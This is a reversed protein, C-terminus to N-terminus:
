GKSLLENVKKVVAFADAVYLVDAKGQAWGCNADMNIARRDNIFRWGVVHPEEGHCCSALGKPHRPTTGTQGVQNLHTMFSFVSQGEHSQDVLSKTSGLSAQSKELFGLIIKAAEDLHTRGDSQKKTWGVGAVFLLQADPRITQADTDPSKFGIVTTKKMADSLKVEVKEAKITESGKESYPAFLGSDVILFWPRSVRRLRASMRQRYYWRQIELQGSASIAYACVHTDIRGGMRLAVGPLARQARSSTAAIVITAGSTRAIAEFAAADTAYRSSSFDNGSVEYFKEAGAGAMSQLAPATVGGVLGIALSSQSLKKKLDMAASLVELSGKSLSGNSETHALFLIKEM